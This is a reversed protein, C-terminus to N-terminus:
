ARDCRCPVRHNLPDPGSRRGAHRAAPHPPRRGACRRRPPSRRAARGKGSEGDVRVPGALQLKGLLTRGDRQPLFELIGGAIIVQRQLVPERASGGRTADAARPQRPRPSSGRRRRPTSALRPGASGPQEVAFPALGQHAIAVTPEPFHRMPKLREGLQAHRDCGPGLDRGNPGDGERDLRSWLFWSDLFGVSFVSPSSASRLCTRGFFKGLPM